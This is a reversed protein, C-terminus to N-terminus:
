KIRSLTSDNSALWKNRKILLVVGGMSAAIATSSYIVFNMLYERTFIVPGSCLSSQCGERIDQEMALAESYRIGEGVALSVLGAAALFLSLMAALFISKCM